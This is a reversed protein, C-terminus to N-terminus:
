LVNLFPIPFQKQYRFIAWLLIMNHCYYDLVNIACGSISQSINKHDKYPRSCSQTIATTAWSMQPVHLFPRSCFQTLTTTAWSMWLVNLFPRPCFQTLTATARSMWLVNLFPGPCFQTLTTTAWSMWLVNLFPRPCFLTLYYHGLVNVACEPITWLLVTNPLLPGPCECCM